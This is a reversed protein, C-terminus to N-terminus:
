KWIEHVEQKWQLEATDTNLPTAPEFAASHRLTLRCGHQMNVELGLEKRRHVSCSGEEGTKKSEREERQM